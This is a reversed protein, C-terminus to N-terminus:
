AEEDESEFIWLYREDIGLYDKLIDAKSEYLSTGDIFDLLEMECAYVMDEGADIPLNYKLSYLCALMRKGIERHLENNM